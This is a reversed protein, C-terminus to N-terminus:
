PLRAKGLAFVVVQEDRYAPEGLRAAVKAVCAPMDPWQRDIGPPVTWSQLHLVPYDAGYTTGDLVDPL